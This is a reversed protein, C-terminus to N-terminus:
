MMGRYLHLSNVKVGLLKLYMFLEAKHNLHHEVALLAVRWRPFTGGLQPSPVDERLFAEDSLSGVLRRFEEYNERLGKLAEEVSLEPTRRNQLFRERMSTFGWDGTTIGRAYVGLAGAMHAMQQGVSFSNETPKWDMKDPPVIKFLEETSHFLYDCYTLYQHVTM